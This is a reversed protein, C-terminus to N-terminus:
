RSRCWRWRPSRRPRGIVREGGDDGGGDRRVQEHQERVDVAEVVAVRALFGSAFSIGVTSVTSSRMMARPPPLPELRPVPPPSGLRPPASRQRRRAAFHDDGVAFLRLKQIIDDRALGDAGAKQDLPSSYSLAPAEEFSGRPSPCCQRRRRPSFSRAAGQWPPCAQLRAPASIRAAFASSMAARAAADM